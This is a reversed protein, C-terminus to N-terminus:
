DREVVTELYSNLAATIEALSRVQEATLRDFLHRRVDEVHGRAAEELVAFGQDTLTAFAGRRDTPCEERRVWGLRELRSVQHSLRSKSSLSQAALDSMRLRREPTESLRALVEYDAASLGSRRSLERNIQEFLLRNTGILGRWARMEQPDLWRPETMASLM